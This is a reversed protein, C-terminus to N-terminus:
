EREAAADAKEAGGAAEGLFFEGFKGAEVAGVDAHDFM